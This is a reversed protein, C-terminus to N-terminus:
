GGVMQLEHLRRYLGPQALLEQHSGQATIRGDELVVVRHASNLSSLRHAIILTTRGGMLNALAEQILAEAESDVSTTAEDLLLIPADKLFARALSIRQRQGGSLTLGRQGVPTDYGQPLGQIFNHINAARAAQEVEESTADPKGYLINERVTTSFLFPEQNVLAIQERLDRADVADIPYDDVWIRGEQPAHFRLLLSILTTKGVGSPGVLAMVEGPNVELSFDKLVPKDPSYGFTVRDFRLGGNVRPLSAGDGQPEPPTDLVAFIRQSAGLAKQIRFNARSLGKLPEQFRALYALYAVLAGVTMGDGLVQPVALWIVLVTSGILIIEVSSNYFGELRALGLNARLINQSFRNFRNQEAREMTFAKVVGIGSLSETALTALQGMRNRVRLSSNKVLARFVQMAVALAIMFPLVLLTLPVNIFFLLGLIGLVMVLHVGAETVLGRLGDELADTDSVQRSVLDGVPTTSFYGMPLSQIHQYLHCRLDHIVRQSLMALLYRQAYDFLQRLVVAGLLGLVVWVLLAPERAIIVQDILVMGTLWPPALGLLTASIMSVLVFPLLRWHPWIYRSLRVIQNQQM